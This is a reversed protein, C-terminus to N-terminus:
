ELKSHGNLYTLSCCPGVVYAFFFAKDQPGLEGKAKILTFTM